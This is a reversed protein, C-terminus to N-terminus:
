KIKGANGLTLPKAIISHAWSPLNKLFQRIPITQPIPLGARELVEPTKIKNRAVEVVSAPSILVRTGILTFSELHQSLLDLEPDITPVLLTIKQSSM